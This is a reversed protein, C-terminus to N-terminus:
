VRMSGGDDNNTRCAGGPSRSGFGRLGDNFYRVVTLQALALRMLTLFRIMLWRAYRNEDVMQFVVAEQQDRHVFGRPPRADQQEISASTRM